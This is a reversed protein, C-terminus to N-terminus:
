VHARGIEEYLEPVEAERVSYAYAEGNEDYRPLGTFSYAWNDEATVEQEDIVTSNRLLEVTVTEPRLEEAGADGVWTKVGSVSTLYYENTIDFFTPNDAEAVYHWLQIDNDRYQGHATEPLATTETVAASPLAMRTAAPFETGDYPEIADVKFGYYNNYYANTTWYFYLDSSPLHVENPISSRGGSYPGVRYTEGGLRYYIYLYDGRNEFASEDNLYVTVPGDSVYSVTYSDPVDEVVEYRYPEGNEDWIDVDAFEFAWNDAAEATTSAIETGNQLLHVTIESPRVESSDGVWIKRGRLTQCLYEDIIRYCGEAPEESTHWPHDADVYTVRYHDPVEDEAVTYVIETGDDNYRWLGEFVHAWDNGASLTVTEVPEGDAYLTVDISEPRVELRDLQWIKEVPINIQENMIVRTINSQIGGIFPIVNGNEDLANWRAWSGNYAMTTTDVGDEAAPSHMTIEVYTSVHPELVVPEGNEDLYEFALARVASLDTEPTLLAWSDDDGLDGPLEEASWCVRVTFGQGEAYSTDVGTLSGEWHPEEGSAPGTSGDPFYAQGEVADYLVLNTVSSNGTSARLRYRYDSDLSAQAQRSTWATRDTRVLKTLGQLSASVFNLDVNAQSRAMRDTTSGNENLDYQDPYSSYLSTVPNTAPDGYVYNLYNPGFDELSTYPISFRYNVAMANGYGRYISNSSVDSDPAFFVPRESLDISVSIRTRGTGNWNRDVDVTVHDRCYEEFERLPIRQFDLDYISGDAVGEYFFDARDYYLADQMDSGSRRGYIMRLSEAIEDESSLLEMGEPLLDYFEISHVFNNRQRDTQYYEFYNDEFISSTGYGAAIAFTGTFRQNDAEQVLSGYRYKATFMQDSLVPINYYSWNVKSTGRQLYHGYHEMDYSAIEQQTFFTAYSDLGPENQLVREGNINRWIELYSFNHLQGNRPIDDRIFRTTCELANYMHWSFGERCDKVVFYFGVVADERTFDWNWILGNRFSDYLTYESNGATRIWLECDYQDRQIQFGSTNYLSTPSYNINYFYYDDDELMTITGNPGTSYLIDDGIVMDYPFGPYRVFPVIYWTQENGGNDSIIDQYRHTITPNTYRYQVLNMYNYKDVRYLDGSYVFEFDSLNLEVDATALLEEQPRDVYTGHLEATNTIHLNENEENYESRPYGAIVHFRHTSSTHDDAAIRYTVGEEAQVRYLPVPQRDMSLVVVDEPFTDVIFGDFANLNPYDGLENISSNPELMARKTNTIYYTYDLVEGTWSFPDPEFEYVVWIYDAADDPLGEMTDVRTAYKDLDYTRRTWPHTYTRTYDFIIHNSETVVTSPHATETLRAQLDKYLSHTCTEQNLETMEDEKIYATGAIFEGEPQLTYTITLTGEFNEDEQVAFANTFTLTNSGYSTYNITTMFPTTITWDYGSHSDDNAPVSASWNLKSTTLTGQTRMGAMINPISLTLEGPAYARDSNTNRYTIQVQITRANLRDHDGNTADWDITQLPTRGGDVTSDFFCIELDWYNEDSPGLVPESPTEPVDAAPTGATESVTESVGAPVNGTGPAPLTEAGAAPATGETEEPVGTDSATDSAGVGDRLVRSIDVPSTETEPASTEPATTEPASAEQAATEPLEQPAATQTEGGGEAATEAMATNGESSGFSLTNPPIVTILIVLALILSIVRAIYKNKM